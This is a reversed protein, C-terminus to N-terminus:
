SPYAVSILCLLILIFVPPLSVLLGVLLCGSLLKFQESRAREGEALRETQSQESGFEEPYRPLSSFDM